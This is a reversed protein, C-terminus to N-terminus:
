ARPLWTHASIEFALLAAVALALLALQPRPFPRDHLHRIHGAYGRSQMAVYVRESREYARIFLAGVMNGVVRGHWRWGPPRSGHPVAARSSRARMMRTAEGILVALYRYMLSIIAVMLRPLRLRELGELLDHFPTTFVLLAAAQVSVWSKLLITAFAIIGEGSLTLAFLRFDFTTIPDGPRTFILPFAAIAFPMAIFAGRVMPAPGIRALLSVVVLLLWAAALALFAGEPLLSVALIFAIVLLFKLRADARHLLSARPLYRDLNLQSGEPLRPRSHRPRRYRWLRHRPRHARRARREGM